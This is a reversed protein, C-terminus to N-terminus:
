KASALMIILACVIAILAAGAIFSGPDFTGSWGGGVVVVYFLVLLLFFIAGSFFASASM